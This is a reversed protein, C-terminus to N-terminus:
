KDCTLQQQTSCRAQMSRQLSTHVIGSVPQGTPGALEWDILVRSNTGHVLQSALQTHPSRQPGMKQKHLAAVAECPHAVSLHHCHACANGIPALKLTVMGVDGPEVPLRRGLLDVVTGNVRTLAKDDASVQQKAAKCATQLHPLWYSTILPIAVTTM